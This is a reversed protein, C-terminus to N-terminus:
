LHSKLEPDMFEIIMDPPIDSKSALAGLDCTFEDPLSRLLIMRQLTASVYTGVAPDSMRYDLWDLPLQCKVITPVTKMSYDKILKQGTAGLEEALKGLFQNKKYWSTKQYATM